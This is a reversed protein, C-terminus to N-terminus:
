ESGEDYDFVISRTDHPLIDGYIREIIIGNVENCIDDLYSQEIKSFKGLVYNSPDIKHASDDQIGIRIRGFGEGNHQIISKIGNHGAAQGGVRNRIQGFPISLEDHIVVIDKSAIHYFAAIAQVAEGSANMFTQPKCLIVKTSGVAKETILSKFKKSSQWDDFDNAEAFSDIAIYGANHRTKIYEKGPNGLGVILITKNNVTISYPLNQRLEIPKKQFLGMAM